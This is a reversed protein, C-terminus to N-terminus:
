RPEHEGSNKWALYLQLTGNTIHSLDLEIDRLAIVVTAMSNKRFGDTLSLEENVESLKRLYGQARERDLIMLSLIVKKTLM